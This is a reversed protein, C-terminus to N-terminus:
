DKRSNFVSACKTKSKRPYNFSAALQASMDQGYTRWVPQLSIASLEFKEISYTAASLLSISAAESREKAQSARGVSSLGKRELIRTSSFSRHIIYLASSLQRSRRKGVYLLQLCAYKHLCFVPPLIGHISRFSFYTKRCLV